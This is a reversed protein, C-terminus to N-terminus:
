FVSRDTFCFNTEGEDCGILCMFSWNGQKAVERLVLVVLFDTAQNLAQQLAVVSGALEAKSKVSLWPDLSSLLITVDDCGTSASDKCVHVASPPEFNTLHHQLRAYAFLPLVLVSRQRIKIRIQVGADNTNNNNPHHDTNKTARSKLLATETSTTQSHTRKPRGAGRGSAKYWKEFEGSGGVGSNSQSLESYKTTVTAIPQHCKADAKQRKVKGRRRTEVFFQRRVDEDPGSVGNMEVPDDNTALFQSSEDCVRTCSVLM